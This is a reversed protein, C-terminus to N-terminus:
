GTVEALMQELAAQDPGVFPTAGPVDSLSALLQDLMHGPAPPLHSSFVHTPEIRRITDLIRAYSDTDVTHLWPSDITAWFVQGERLQDNTLDAASMPPETDLLAGFCDSSFLARTKDDVFGTTIPSDWSPPKVATLTRDAIEIQEGVNVLRVRDLPLPSFLNLIGVGLFSTIVRLEPCLELLRPIAGIHDFDTHTLWLWRLESPDIVTQLAAMFDDAEVVPGADVLVPEAGQLVFANISLFGLGGVSATSTIVDVGPVPTFTTTM